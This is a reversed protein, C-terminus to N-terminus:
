ALLAGLGQDGTAPQTSAHVPLPVNRALCWLFLATARRHASGEKVQDHGTLHNLNTVAM